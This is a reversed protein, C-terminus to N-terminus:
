KLIAVWHASSRPTPKRHPNATLRGAIRLQAKAKALLKKGQANVVVSVDTPTHPKLQAWSSAVAIQARPPGTYGLRRADSLALSVITTVDCATSCTVNQFFVQHRLAAITQGSAVRVTLVPASTGAAAPALVATAVLCVALASLRTTSQGRM